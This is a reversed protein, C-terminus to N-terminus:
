SERFAPERVLHRVLDARGQPSRAYEAVREAERLKRRIVSWPERQDEAWARLLAYLDRFTAGADVLDCLAVARAARALAAPTLGHAATNARWQRVERPTLDAV